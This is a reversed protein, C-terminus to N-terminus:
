KEFYMRRFSLIHSHIKIFLSLFIWQIHLNKAKSITSAKNVKDVKNWKRYLSWLPKHLSINVIRTRKSLPLSFSFPTRTSKGKNLYYHRIAYASKSISLPQTAINCVSVNNRTINPSNQDIQIAVWQTLKNNVPSRKFCLICLINIIINNYLRIEREIINYM